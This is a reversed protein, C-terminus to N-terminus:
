VDVNEPPTPSFRPPDAYHTKRINETPYYKRCEPGIPKWRGDVLLRFRVEELEAGCRVCRPRRPQAPLPGQKTEDIEGRQWRRWAADLAKQDPLYRGM